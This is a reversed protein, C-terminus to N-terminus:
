KHSEKAICDRVRHSVTCCADARSRHPPHPSCRPLCCRLSALGPFCNRHRPHRAELPATAPHCVRRRRARASQPYRRSRLPDALVRRYAPDPADPGTRIAGTRFSRPSGSPSASGVSRRPSCCSAAMRAAMGSPTILSFPAALFPAQALPNDPRLREVLRSHVVQTNQALTAVLISIGLSGGLNRMLSRIATGQTLIHRTLMREESRDGVEQLPKAAPAM